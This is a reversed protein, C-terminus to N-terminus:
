LKVATAFRQAIGDTMSGVDNATNIKLSLNDLARMPRKNGRVM